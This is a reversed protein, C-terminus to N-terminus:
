CHRKTRTWIFTTNRKVRYLLKVASYGPHGLPVKQWEMRIISAPFEESIHVVVVVGKNSRIGVARFAGATRVGEEVSNLAVEVDHVDESNISLANWEDHLPGHVM